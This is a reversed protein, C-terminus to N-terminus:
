RQAMDADSHGQTELRLVEAEMQACGTVDRLTGVTCPVELASVAGGRWVMRTTITEPARRDLVVQELLCRLLAQRQTRSVTDQHWLTPLAHGLTSFAERLAPPLTLAMADEPVPRLRADHEQAEQLAQWAAEWRRERAAAM